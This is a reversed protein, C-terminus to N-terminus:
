GKKRPWAKQVAKKFIESEAITMEALTAIGELSSPHRLVGAVDHIGITQLKKLIEIPLDIGQADGGDQEPDSPAGKEAAAEIEAITKSVDRAFLLLNTLSTMIGSAAQIQGAVEDEIAKMAAGLTPKEMAGNQANETKNDM